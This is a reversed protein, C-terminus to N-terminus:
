AEQSCIPQILFYATSATLYLRLTQRLSCWDKIPSSFNAHRTTINPRVTKLRSMCRELPITCDCSWMSRALSLLCSKAAQDNNMSCKLPFDMNNLCMEFVDYCCSKYISAASDKPNPANNPVFHNLHWHQMMQMHTIKHEKGNVIIGKINTNQKMLIALIEAWLLFLYRAVPDGQRCGWQIVFQDSIWM